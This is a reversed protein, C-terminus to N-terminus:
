SAACARRAAADRRGARGRHRRRLRSRSRAPRADRATARLLARIEEPTADPHLSRVLAVVGAVHPASMSTGALRVYADGVRIGRAGSARTRRELAALPDRGARLPRRGIFRGAGPAPRSVLFGVARLVARALRRGADGRRRDDRPPEEPEPVRRRRRQQRRLDRVRTGLAHALEVAEDILPNTPCRLSCSWSANIVDAGNEAAYVIARALASYLGLGSAPFGKLVMVHAERRSASSASATPASPPRRARCTRATDTTTSPIPM